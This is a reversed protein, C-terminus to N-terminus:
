QPHWTCGAGVCSRSLLSEAQSSAAAHAPASPSSSRCDSHWILSLAQLRLPSPSAATALAWSAQSTCSYQLRPVRCTAGAEQGAM